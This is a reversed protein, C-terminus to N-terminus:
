DAQGVLRKIDEQLLQYVHQGLEEGHLQKFDTANNASYSCYLHEANSEDSVFLAYEAEDKRKTFRVLYTTGGLTLRETRYVEFGILATMPMWYHNNLKVRLLGCFQPSTSHQRWISSVDIIDSLGIRASRVINNGGLSIFCRM